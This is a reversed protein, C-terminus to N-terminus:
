DEYDSNSDQNDEEDSDLTAAVLNNIPNVCNAVPTM